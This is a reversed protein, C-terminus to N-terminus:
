NSFKKVIKKAKRPLYMIGNGVKYSYSAKIREQELELEKIKKDKEDIRRQLQKMRAEDKKIIENKEETLMQFKKELDKEKEKFKKIDAFLTKMQSDREKLQSDKEKIKQQHKKIQKKNEKTEEKYEEIKRRKMYSDCAMEMTMRFDYREEKKIKELVSNEGREEIEKLYMQAANDLLILMRRYFQEYYQENYIECNEIFEVLIKVLKYHAYINKDKTKNTMTSNERVRRGYYPLDIYGAKDALTICEMSFIEDEHLLHERFRLHNRELFERKFIQLVVGPKFNRNKQFDVFLDQGREILGNYMAKREYYKEFFLNNKRVDENEFFVKTGFFLEDLDEQQAYEYVTQLAKVDTYWDDSDLFIIYKGIAKEMGYNRAASQGGNEKSFVQIRQDVQAYKELIQLSSDSSGDDVCIIEIEKLTQAIVSDLCEEIYKETNYVPIIVSIKIEENSNKEGANNIEM